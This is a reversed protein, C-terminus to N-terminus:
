VQLGPNQRAIVKLLDDTLQNSQCMHFCKLQNLNTLHQLKDEYFAEHETVFPLLVLTSLQSCKSISALSFEDMCECADIKLIKLQPIRAFDPMNVFNEATMRLAHLSQLQYLMENFIPPSFETQEYIAEVSLSTLQNCRTGILTLKTDDVGQCNSLNLSTLTTPLHEFSAKDLRARILRTEGIFLLKQLLLFPNFNVDALSLYFNISKLTGFQDAILNLQSHDIAIHSIDLHDLQGAPNPKNKWIECPVFKDGNIFVSTRFQKAMFKTTKSWSHNRAIRMWRKCVGEISM